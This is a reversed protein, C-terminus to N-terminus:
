GSCGGCCASPLQVLDAADAAMGAVHLCALLEDGTAATSIRVTRGGADLDLLAAPDLMLLQRELGALDPPAGNTRLSFEM